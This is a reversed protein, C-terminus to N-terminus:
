YTTSVYKIFNICEKDFEELLKKVSENFTRYYTDLDFDFCIHKIHFRKNHLRSRYKFFLEKYMKNVDYEQYFCAPSYVFSFLKDLELNMKCVIDNYKYIKWEQYRNKATKLDLKSFSYIGSAIVNINELCNLYLRHLLKLYECWESKTRNFLRYKSTSFKVQKTRLVTGKLAYLKANNDTAKCFQKTVNNKYLDCKAYVNITKMKNYYERESILIVLYRAKGKRVGYSLTLNYRKGLINKLLMKRLKLLKNIRINSKPLLFTLKVGQRNQAIKNVYKRSQTKEFEYLDNFLKMEHNISDNSDIFFHNMLHLGEIEEQIDRIADFRIYTNSYENYVRLLNDMNVGM